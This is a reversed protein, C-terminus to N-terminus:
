RRAWGQSLVRGADDLRVRYTFPPPNAALPARFRLDVFEVVATGSEKWYRTVPFRAFRLVKQVEPLSRAELIQPNLPADPYYRYELVRQAIATTGPPDWLDLQLEYVGRPTRILGDWHWLSPPLPLAAFSQVELQEAATFQQVRALATRHAVLAAGLYAALLVLGARCWAARSVGFGWGRFLPGHFLLGLFASLALATFVSMHVGIRQSVGTILLMAFVCLLWPRMARRFVNEKREYVGAILQPLLLIATLTFDILFILDWAPRAWSFPSWIMTGFNTVLDLMIHSLIGVAYVLVLLGFPPCEWKRRRALWLTFAALALAFVPALLLSHTISRHWTIVLLPDRSLADRLTDTDPFIAGLMAAWTVVRTGSASRKSMLDEGRFVAKAILAGAIGHTITDM